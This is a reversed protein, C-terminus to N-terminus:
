REKAFCQCIKYRRKVKKLNEPSINTKAVRRKCKPKGNEYVQELFEIERWLYSASLAADNMTRLAEQVRLTQEMQQKQKEIILDELAFAKIQKNLMRCEHLYEVLQVRQALSDALAGHIGHTLLSDFHIEQPFSTTNYIFKIKEICVDQNSCLIIDHSLFLFIEGILAQEASKYGMEDYNHTILDANCQARSSLSSFIFVFIASFLFLNKM